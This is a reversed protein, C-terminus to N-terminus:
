IEEVLSTLYEDTLGKADIFDSLSDIVGDDLKRVVVATAIIASTVLITTKHKKVFTKTNALTNKM